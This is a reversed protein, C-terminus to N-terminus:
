FCVRGDTLGYIKGTLFFIDFKGEWPHVPRTEAVQGCPVARLFSPVRLLAQLSLFGLYDGALRGKTLRSGAGSLSPARTFWLSGQLPSFLMRSPSEPSPSPRTGVGAGWATISCSSSGLFRSESLYVLSKSLPRFCFSFLSCPLMSLMSAPPRCVFDRGGGARGWWGSQPKRNPQSHSDLSGQRDGLCFFLCLM